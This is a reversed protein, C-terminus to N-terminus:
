ATRGYGSNNLTPQLLGPIRAIDLWGRLYRNGVKMNKSDAAFKTVRRKGSPKQAKSDWQGYELVAITGAQEDLSELVCVHEPSSVYLVDGPKPLVGLKAWVFAKGSQYVVRSLNVGM